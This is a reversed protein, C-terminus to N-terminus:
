NLVLEKKPSKIIYSVTILYKIKIKESLINVLNSLFARQFNYNRM